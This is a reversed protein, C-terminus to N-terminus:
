RHPSHSGRWVRRSATVRSCGARRGAARPRRRRHRDRLRPGADRASERRAPARPSSSSSARQRSATLARRSHLRARRCRAAPALRSGCRPRRACCCPTRTTLRSTVRECGPARRSACAAGGLEDLRRHTSACVCARTCGPWASNACCAARQRQDRSGRAADRPAMRRYTAALARLWERRDPVVLEAAGSPTPARVDAVFDAITFDIEHGVGSVVPIPCAFIARAVAEDNFAWLDELSGGGRAVILVDCDARQAPSGSRRRSRARRRRARCRRGPLDAGAIAPFRRRLVHLVDRIAAGTPSTIVGIRRPLRPCRGSASRRRVPGRGRAEAKLEEFRRRLAGEGAEELHEVILQYEGRAEYLSVRGRALVQAGDRSRSACWCTASGSCRAACRRRPTRSRSTGTGPPRARCTRSRARSGCRASAASSCCGRRATSALRHFGRACPPAAAPAADLWSDQM